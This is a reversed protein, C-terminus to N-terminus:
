YGAGPTGAPVDGDAKGAIFRNALQRCASTLVMTDVGVAVFSAGADLWKRAQEDTTSLIGAAKGARRIRALADAIAQQVEPHDPQGVFGMSASLDAPGIFVGDIGPTGAIADLNRLALASEAQV